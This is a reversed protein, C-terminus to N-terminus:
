HHLCGPCRVIREGLNQPLQSGGGVGVGRSATLAEGCGGPGQQGALMSHGPRIKQLHTGWSHLLMAELPQSEGLVRGWGCCLEELNGLVLRRDMGPLCSQLTFFLM